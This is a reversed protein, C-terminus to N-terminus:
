GGRNYEASIIGNVARRLAEDDCEQWGSVANRPLGPLLDTNVEVSEGLQGEPTVLCVVATSGTPQIVVDGPAADSQADGAGVWIRM